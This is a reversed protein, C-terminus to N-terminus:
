DEVPFAGSRFYSSSGNFLVMDVEHDAIYSSFRFPQGMNEEYNRMDIAYVTEFHSALLKLIANDYSEGFILLKQTGPGQFIIEGADSGYFAGYSVQELPAGAMFSQEAGYASASEGKMTVTLEPYDFRYARFEETFCKVAGATLSRSGSYDPAVATEGQPVLPAEGPKLMELIQCYGLYSGRYNWHHDTRYFHERYDDFALTTFRGFHGAPLGLADELYDSFGMREGTVFDVDIDREIYYCYFPLDPHLQALTRISTVMPVSAERYEQLVMPQLVLYEGGFCLSGLVSVYQDPNARLIGRIISLQYNSNAENYLSKMTQSLNVQDSLANEMSDQFSGSLIGGLTPAELKYAGRNEYYNIDKPTLVTRCLGALLVLTLGLLFLLNLAKKAKM